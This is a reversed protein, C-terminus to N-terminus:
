GQWEGTCYSSFSYDENNDDLVKHIYEVQRNADKRDDGYKIITFILEYRKM